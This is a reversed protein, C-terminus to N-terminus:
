YDSEAMLDEGFVSKLGRGGKALACVDRDIIHLDSECNKMVKNLVAGRTAKSFKRATLKCIPEM